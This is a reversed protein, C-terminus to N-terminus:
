SQHIKAKKVDRWSIVQGEKTFNLIDKNQRKCPLMQTLKCDRLKKRLGKLIKIFMGREVSFLLTRRMKGFHMM